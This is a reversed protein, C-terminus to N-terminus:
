LNNSIINSAVSPYIGHWIIQSIPHYQFTEEDVAIVSPIIDQLVISGPQSSDSYRYSVHSISLLRSEFCYKVSHVVKLTEKVM